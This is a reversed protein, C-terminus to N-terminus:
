LNSKNSTYIPSSKPIWSQIYCFLLLASCLLFIQLAYNKKESFVTENSM